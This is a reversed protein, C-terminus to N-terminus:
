TSCVLGSCKSSRSQSKLKAFNRAVNEILLEGLILGMLSISSHIKLKILEESLQNNDPAHFVM